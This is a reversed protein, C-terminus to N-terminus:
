GHHRVPHGSVQQCLHKRDVGSRVGLRQAAMGQPNAFRERTTGHDPRFRRRGRIVTVRSEVKM